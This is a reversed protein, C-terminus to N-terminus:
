LMTIFHSIEWVVFCFVAVCLLFIINARLALAQPRYLIPTVRKKNKAIKIENGIELLYRIIFSRTNEMKQM